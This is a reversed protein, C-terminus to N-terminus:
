PTERVFVTRRGRPDVLHLRDGFLAIEAAGPLATLTLRRGDLRGSYSAPAGQGERRDAGRLIVHGTPNVVLVTSLTGRALDRTADADGVVHTASWRGVISQGDLRVDRDPGTQGFVGPTTGVALALLVFAPFSRPM